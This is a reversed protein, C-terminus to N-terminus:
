AADTTRRSIEGRWISVDQSAEIGVSVKNGQIKGVVVIIQEDGHQIVIQQDKKRTLVLMSDMGKTLPSFHHAHRAFVV